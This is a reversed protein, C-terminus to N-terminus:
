AHWSNQTRETDLNARRDWWLPRDLVICYRRYTIPCTQIQAHLLCIGIYGNIRAM